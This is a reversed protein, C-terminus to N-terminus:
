SLLFVGLDVSILDFDVKIVMDIITREFFLM